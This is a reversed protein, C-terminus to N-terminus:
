QVCCGDDMMSRILDSGNDVMGTKFKGGHLVHGRAGTFKGNGNEKGDKWQGGHILWGLPSTTPM